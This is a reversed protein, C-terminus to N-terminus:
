NVKNKECWKCMDTLKHPKKYKKMTYKNFSSYSLNIKSPFSKYHDVMAFHRYMACTQLRKLFRNAAVTSDKEVHQNLAVVLNKDLAPRGKKRLVRKIRSGDFWESYKFNFNLGRAEKLTFGSQKLPRLYEFNPRKENCFKGFLRLANTERQGM